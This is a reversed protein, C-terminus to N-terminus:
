TAENDKINTRWYQYLEETTFQCYESDNEGTMPWRGLDYQVDANNAWEMFEFVHTTIEKALGSDKFDLPECSPFWHRDIIEFIKEEM